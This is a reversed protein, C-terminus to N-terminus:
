DCIKVSLDGDLLLNRSAVDAVLICREHIYGLAQAMEIFWQRQLEECPRTTSLHTQLRKCQM